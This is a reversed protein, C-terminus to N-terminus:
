TALYDAVSLEESAGTTGRLLVTRRDLDVVTTMLTMLPDGDAACRRVGHPLGREGLVGALWAPTVLEGAVGAVHEELWAGRRESEARQGLSDTAENTAEVPPQGSGQTGDGPSSGTDLFTPLRRLHNTHWQVGEDAPEDDPGGLDRVDVRGAATEVVAVRGSGCEGLTYAFGGASPLDGLTRVADDLDTARQVRRAVFHRGPADAPHQVQLHNIGWALGAETVVHANAPIFGPYWQTTVAPEDELRLTVFMFARELAPAGDENHAVLSRAGRVALDTCGTGDPVGIDGRLNALLLDDADVGAGEAMAFLEALVERHHRQAAVRLRGITTGGQATGAWARLAAREPMAQQVAQVEDRALEGLRRFVAERGGALRLWRVGALRSESSDIVDVGGETHGRQQAM